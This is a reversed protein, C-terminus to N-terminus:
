SVIALKSRNIQQKRRKNENNQYHPLLFIFNQRIIDRYISFIMIYLFIAIYRFIRYKKRRYSVIRYISISFSIDINEMYQIM